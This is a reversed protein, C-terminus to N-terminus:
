FVKFQEFCSNGLLAVSISNQLGSVLSFCCIKWSSFFFLVIKFYWYLFRLLNSRDSYHRNDVSVSCFRFGLSQVGLSDLIGCHFCGAGNWTLKQAAQSKGTDCVPTKHEGGLLINELDQCNWLLVKRYSHLGHCTTFFVLYSSERVIQQTYSQSCVWLFFQFVEWSFSGIDEVVSIIGYEPLHLLTLLINWQESKDLDNQVHCPVCLWCSVIGFGWQSHCLM